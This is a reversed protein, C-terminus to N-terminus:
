AEGLGPFRRAQLAVFAKLVAMCAAHQGVPLVCAAGLVVDARHGHYPYSGYVAVGDTPYASDSPVLGEGKYPVHEGPPDTFSVAYPRVTRVVEGLPRADCAPYGDAKLQRRAGAFFQCAFALQCGVCAPYYLAAVGGKALTGYLNAVPWVDVTTNGDAGISAQCASGAPGLVELDANVSSYLSLHAATVPVRATAPVPVPVTAVGVGTPCIVVPVSTSSAAGAPLAPLAGSVVLAGVLWTLLRM